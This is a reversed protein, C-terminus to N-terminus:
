RYKVTIKEDTRLELSFTVKPGIVSSADPEAGVLKAGEPLTIIVTVSQAETGPQKRITLEYVDLDSVQSVISPPLAYEFTVGLKQGPPLLIFNAFATLGEAEGSLQRARGDWARDTIMAAAPVPHESASTLQSGDPVYVRVYDWYCGETLDRYRLELTYDTEQRCPENSLPASHRYTIELAARAPDNHDLVVSYDIEREVMVNVKNFGMSTDVVELYDGSTPPAQRGDWGIEDLVAAVGPDRVYVQLHGERVARHLTKMLVVPDVSGLDQQLQDKIASALLGMFDKRSAM